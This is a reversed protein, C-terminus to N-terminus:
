PSLPKLGHKESGYGSRGTGPPNGQEQHQKRKGPRWRSQCLHAAVLVQAPHILDPIARSSERGIPERDLGGFSGAVKGDLFRPDTAFCDAQEAEVVSSRRGASRDVKPNTSSEAAVM